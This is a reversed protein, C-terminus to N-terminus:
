PVYCALACAHLVVSPPALCMTPIGGCSLLHSSSARGLPSTCGLPAAVFLFLVFQRAVALSGLHPCSRLSIGVSRGLLRVSSAGCCTFLIFPLSIVGLSTLLHYWLWFFLWAGQGLCKDGMRAMLPRRTKMKFGM